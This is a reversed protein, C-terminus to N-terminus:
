FLEGLEKRVGTSVSTDRIQQRIVPATLAQSQRTGGDISARCDDPLQDAGDSRLEHCSLANTVRVSGGIPAPM